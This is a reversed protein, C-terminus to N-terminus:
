TKISFGLFSYPFKTINLYAVFEDTATDIDKIFKNHTTQSRGSKWVHEQPNEDPTAAPFYIIEINSDEKIAKQAECGKHWGAQDWVLLIKKDPCMKRVRPIIEATIYMNQWKTKFAHETGDKM